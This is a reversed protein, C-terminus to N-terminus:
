QYGSWRQTEVFGEFVELRQDPLQQSSPTKEARIELRPIVQELESEYFTSEQYQVSLPLIM